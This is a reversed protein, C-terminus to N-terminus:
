QSAQIIGLHIEERLRPLDYHIIEWLMDDSVQNRGQHLRNSTDIFKEVQSIKLNNVNQALISIFRGIIEINREVARKKIPHSSFYALTKQNDDFYGEIEQIASIIEYLWARTRDDM